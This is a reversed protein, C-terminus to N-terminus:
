KLYKFHCLFHSYIVDDKKDQCFWDFMSFKVAVEEFSLSLFLYYTDWLKVTKDLDYSIGQHSLSYESSFGPAIFRGTDFKGINSAINM